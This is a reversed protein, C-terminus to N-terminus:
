MYASFCAVVQFRVLISLVNGISFPYCTRSDTDHSLDRWSNISSCNLALHRNHGIWFLASQDVMHRFHFGIILSVQHNVIQCHSDTAAGTTSRSLCAPSMPSLGCVAWRPSSAFSAPRSPLPSPLPSCSVELTHLAIPRKDSVYFQPNLMRGSHRSRKGRWRPNAIGVHMM